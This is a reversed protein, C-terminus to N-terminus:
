RSPLGIPNPWVLLPYAATSLPTLLQLLRDTAEEGLRRWPDAAARDTAAEVADHESRGIPTIGGDATLWGRDVLRNAAASWEDDIWGRHPQLDARNNDIAGRWVLSECGTVGAAILAAVHGDGRLERLVTTAWWVRAVPNSSVPVGLNAAGLVRGTVDVGELAQALLAACEEIGDLDAWVESLAAVAGSERAALVTGPDARTWVDPLARSVMSPSFCSFAAVVPEPGVAGFPAARGAFYGRWFGRLGAQEFAERASPAFYTVAHIPEFLTWMTRALAEDARV